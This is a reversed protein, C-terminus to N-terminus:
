LTYNYEGPGVEETKGGLQISATTGEPVTFRYTVKGDKREWSSKIIGYQTELSTKVYDIRPDAVPKLLIHKYGPAAEDPNIGGMVGYMWAAVAGYSYHNFSNMTTSWMSGDPRLSDWHEWITTAGQNVSYLWSPFDEQLLLSYAVDDYGSVSLALMLYATGVFGTTLKNGNERVLQALREAFPKKNDVLDFHLVLVYATQTDSTMRNGRIFEKNFEKRVNRYLEEYESMDRGLIKGAKVFLSTSYAYYATAILAVETPGVREGEPCDVALWDAFHFGVNWLYENDGSQRVWDIHAKMSDFQEELFSEDGYALYLLWPCIVAADAWGSSNKQGDDTVDTPSKPKVRGGTEVMGPIVYPVRGDPYQDAKLDHLWKRFFKRVDYNYAATQTFVQADGTWGLREDRQPCDTPVDIFNGKQSWIINRYLQNVKENSCEFYGTRKMDSCIVVATFDDLHVEGPWQDLRIYRFGQFTHHPQYTEEDGGCIYEIKQKASRLNETYFNGDKDLIEAHSIEVKDGAKGHVKFRVYGALNQGFDIVTEGKPTHILEVPQVLEIERVEEGEQPILADKSFNHIKVPKWDSPKIRADYTEGDYLESFLVPSQASLWSEDTKIEESTGDEYTVALSAIAAIESSWTERNFGWALRGLCWGKGVEIELTNDQELMETVDYVQYQLRNRYSTWGPAMIFHGVQRGNLEAKYVGLASITLAADKVKKPLSFTKRFVPAATGLDVSSAIFEANHISMKTGRQKISQLSPYLIWEKDVM